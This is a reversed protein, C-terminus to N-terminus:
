GKGVEQSIMGMLVQVGMNVDESYPIGPYRKVLAAYAPPDPYVVIRSLLEKIAGAKYQPRGLQTIYFEWEAETPGRLVIEWRGSKERFHMVDVGAKAEIEALQEKTLGSDESM